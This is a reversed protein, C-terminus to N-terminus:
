EGHVWSALLRRPLCNDPLRAFKGLQNFQHHHVINFPDPVSLCNQIHEIRIHFEQVHFMNIGLVRRIMRHFFSSIKRCLNATLTWSECGYFATNVPIALFMQRKTHLDVTSNWFNQLAAAQQTAQQLHYDIEIDDRLSEHICCGLYKFCDMFPIFFENNDRFVLDAKATALEDPEKPLTPFYMAKTKSPATKNGNADLSGVHM